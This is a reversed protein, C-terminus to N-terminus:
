DDIKSHQRLTRNVVSSADNAHFLLRWIIATLEQLARMVDSEAQKSQAKAEEAARGKREDDTADKVDQETWGAEVKDQLM